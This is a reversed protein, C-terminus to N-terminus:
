FSDELLPAVAADAADTMLCRTLGVELWSRRYRRQLLTDRGASSIRAWGSPAM